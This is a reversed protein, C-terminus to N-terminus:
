SAGSEPTRDAREGDAARTGVPVAVDLWAGGGPAPRLDVDGGLSRLRERMGALGFGADPNAGRAIGVGDDVVALAVGDDTRHLSAEVRSAQAHKRVNGLGEQLCRLLVVERERDLAVDDFAIVTVIQTEREFRAAVRRAAEALGADVSQGASEAVIARIERLTERAADEITVLTDNLAAADRPTWGESVVEAAAKAQREAREALMVLGTLSQAVTDHMDRALREREHAAGAERASAEAREQADQLQAVLRAREEGWEMIRTIWYGIGLAFLFSLGATIGAALVGSSGLAIGLFVAVALVADWIFMGALRGYALCGILPYAIVQLVALNPDVAVGVGVIVVMLGLYVPAAPARGPRILLRGFAVYAVAFAALAAFAQATHAPDDMGVASDLWMLLACAAVTAATAADWWARTTFNM